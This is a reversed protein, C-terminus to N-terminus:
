DPKEGLEEPFIILPHSKDFNEDTFDINIKEGSPNIFELYELVEFEEPMIVIAHNKVDKRTVPEDTQQLYWIYNVEYDIPELEGAERRRTLEQSRLDHSRLEQYLEELKQIIQCVEPQDRDINDLATLADYIESRCDELHNSEFLVAARTIMLGIQALGTKFIEQETIQEGISQIQAVLDNFKEIAEPSDLVRSADIARKEVEQLELSENFGLKRAIERLTQNIPEREASEPEPAGINRENM